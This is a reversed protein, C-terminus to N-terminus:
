IKQRSNQRRRPRYKRWQPTINRYVVPPTMRPEDEHHRALWSSLHNALDWKGASWGTLLREAEQRVLVVSSRRGRRIGIDSNDKIFKVEVVGRDAVAALGGEGALIEHEIIHIKPRPKAPKKSM